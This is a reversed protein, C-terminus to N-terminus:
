HKLAARVQTAKWADHHEQALQGYKTDYITAGDTIQSVFRDNFEEWKEHCRRAYTEAEQECIAHREHLAERLFNELDDDSKGESQFRKYAAPSADNFAAEVDATPVPIGLQQRFRKAVETTFIPSSPHLLMHFNGITMHLGDERVGFHKPVYDCGDSRTMSVEGEGPLNGTVRKSRSEDVEYIPYATKSVKEDSVQKMQVNVAFGNQADVYLTEGNALTVIGVAHGTPSGFRYTLNPVGQLKEKLCWASLSCDIGGVEEAVAPTIGRDGGNQVRSIIACYQFILEQQLKALEDADTTKEIEARLESARELYPTPNVTGSRAALREPLDHVGQLVSEELQQKCTDADCETPTSSVASNAATAYTAIEEKTTEHKEGVAHVTNIQIAAENEQYEGNKGV